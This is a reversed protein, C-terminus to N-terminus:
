AAGRKMECSRGFHAESHEDRIWTRATTPSSAHQDIPYLDPRLRHRSVGTAREAALVFEGPLPRHARLWNSVNQQKAGTEREFGSQGSTLSV